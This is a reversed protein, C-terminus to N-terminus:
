DDQLSVVIQSSVKLKKNKLKADQLIKEVKELEKTLAFIREKAIEDNKGFREQSSFNKLQHFNIKASFINLLIDKADENSFTGEIFTLKETKSM